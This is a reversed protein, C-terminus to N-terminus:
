VPFAHSKVISRWKIISGLSQRSCPALTHKIGAYVILLKTCFDNELILSELRRQSMIVNILKHHCEIQKIQNSAIGNFLRWSQVREFMLFYVVREFM